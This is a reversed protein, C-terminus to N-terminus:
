VRTYYPPTYVGEWTLNHITAPTPHTSEITLTANKNKQYFPIIRQQVDDEIQTSQNLVALTEFEEEYILGTENTATPFNSVVIAKYRGIPGFGMKIRHIITNASSDSRFNEGDKTTYYFTPIHIKMTYDYGILFDKNSWDGEIYFKNYGRASASQAPTVYQAVGGTTHLKLVQEDNGKNTFLSGENNSLQTDTQALKFQNLPLGLNNTVIRFLTQNEITGSSTALPQEGISEYTVLDGHSFGHAKVSWFITQNSSDYADIAKFNIYKVQNPSYKGLGTSISTDYAAFNLGTPFSQRILNLNLYTRDASSDYQGYIDAYGTPVSSKTSVKTLNDLHVRYEIERNFSLTNSTESQFSYVVPTETEQKISFKQLQTEGNAKVVLYLSDDQMCHYEISGTFTWKFWSALKREFVQDFYRFGYIVSTGKESFFIISNEKSNSIYKLDKNFLRNVVASQEIVQPEGERQIRTMEWFRSYKGANDLFAITTGMSIPNTTYNFNYSSLANIKATLPTFADSDTTLMFQQTRTFLVLGTNVEIGDYLTAPTDSSSSIDIPDSAILQIASKAFFNTFDGSRSLVIFEDALIAFRNRFFLLKNIQKGVFSPEPNTVSDGVSADDWKPVVPQTVGGISYTSGDLETLRFNGDATRILAVPMTSKKLEIKRGPQACEAWIGEGDLYDADDDPDGNEKLKGEFKVYYNDEEAASNIVEVVMGHKCQTPLDGVDSVQGAVVNLLEGVPTSGNFKVTHKIYLGSGIIEINNASINGEDIIASRIDGLISEATITTETDFPTPQPRALALNAQVTSTSITDITVKYYGDKMWVYFYDGALWGEGGHLLDHTTTYRAQYTTEQSNGTGTTYPVSQGTTAIRFYLNKPTRASAGTLGSVDVDSSNKVDVNESHSGSIAVDTLSVGDTVSFIRTGVNPAFADRGDGATDDCRAGATIRLSRSLMGGNNAGASADCYNNSSKILEVSIRTATTVTKTTQDSFLNLAYQKSYSISKLEVYVEKKFNTDPATTTDMEVTKTRNNLYTFDNLTLTQIDEEGTHYLYKGSGSGTTADIVTKVAGTLCDFMRVTGDQAVQGIYQENEDRYYHFYKGNSTIGTNDLWVLNDVGPISNSYAAVTSSVPLLTSPLNIRFYVTNQYASMTTEAVVSYDGDPIFPDNRLSIIDGTSLGHADAASFSSGYNLFRAYTQGAPIAQRQLFHQRKGISAVFEGAPRKLLGQTINPLANEMDNVQGPIKQEDPQQSIGQTLSHITQTVNAM